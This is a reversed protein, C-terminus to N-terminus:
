AVHNVWMAAALGGASSGSVVIDEVSSFLNNEKDLSALQAVTINHGRFFL